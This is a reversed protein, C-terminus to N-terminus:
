PDDPPLLAIRDGSRVVTRPDPQRLTRDRLVSVAPLRSALPHRRAQHRGRALQRRAHGRHGPLRAAPKPPETAPEADYGADAAAETAHAQAANIERAIAALVNANTVWGTSQRGDDSLVPVGDPGTGCRPPKTTYITGCRRAGRRRSSM